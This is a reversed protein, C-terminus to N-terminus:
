INAPELNLPEQLESNIPFLNCQAYQAMLQDVLVLAVMAEVMPVARPVVCPDHRGRALLEIEQKERTVTHQKKGITATPKFAVRMNIIEGNSIGGQIGGSRNTRTRIRGHEDTYFEDNHESGTLFTGAFGSGFEFGKTAPLSMVAKALEAELKDFVPSGLGRPANRVICTVVGGISNGRTRVADIAAIMKEAYDPNPCRVINSEIQDLTVTDHDVSGDPLVVQHVQSVYALVETGSFLKLIKKAIAGSAVRGITERASSRGGGQVARVGYKMDYTADAHSPRYAISMEKYDHGRQDTNPVLVHIPTGTTVGESVGSYIRCTDTEKRPTTIRSQGPRRRDLDGQLDAESLPIRPPCGDVICGVGGGHSEGFTTVRFYNGFTSGAAQIQLKKHTRPKISIRLSSFSLRQLDPSLSSNPKTAGLFPKSTISSAM